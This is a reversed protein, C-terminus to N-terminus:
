MLLRKIIPIRSLAFSFLYSIAFLIIAFVPIFYLPNLSASDIEWLDFLISMVLPHIIYIGLSLKSANILAIHYQPSIQQDKIVIFLAIAEFLTFLNIDEYLLLYPKGVYSSAINTLVCVAVVSM